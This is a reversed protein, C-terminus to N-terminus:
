VDPTTQKGHKNGHPVCEKSHTKRHNALKGTYPFGIKPSIAYRTAPLLRSSLAHSIVGAHVLTAMDERTTRLAALGARQTPFTSSSMPLTTLTGFLLLKPELGDPRLTDNMWKLALHLSNRSLYIPPGIPNGFSNTTM